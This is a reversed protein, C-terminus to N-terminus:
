DVGASYTLQAPNFSTTMLLLLLLLAISSLRSVVPARGLENFLWARRSSSLRTQAQRSRWHINPPAFPVSSEVHCPSEPLHDTCQRSLGAQFLHQSWIGFLLTLRQCVLEFERWSGENELPTRPIAWIGPNFPVWGKINRCRM